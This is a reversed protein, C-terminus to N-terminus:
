RREALPALVDRQEDRVEEIALDAPTPLWPTPLSLPDLLDGTVIAQPKACGITQLGLFAFVAVCLVWRCTTGGALDRM